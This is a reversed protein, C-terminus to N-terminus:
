RSSQRAKRLNNHLERLPVPRGAALLSRDRKLAALLNKDFTPQTDLRSWPDTSDDDATRQEKEWVVLMQRGFTVKDLKRALLGGMARIHDGLRPRSDAPRPTTLRGNTTFLYILWGGLLFGLSHWLREDRYFRSPDDFAGIGLRYDDFLWVGKGQLRLGVLNRILQANGDNQLSRNSFLSSSAVVIIHGSGRTIEWIGPASTSRETAAQM